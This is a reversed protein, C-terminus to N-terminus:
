FSALLSFQARPGPITIHSDVDRYAHWEVALDFAFCDWARGRLRPGLIFDDSIDAYATSRSDRFSKFWAATAGLEVWSPYFLSTRVHTFFDGEEYDYRVSLLLESDFMPRKQGVLSRQTSSVGGSIFVSKKNEIDSPLAFNNLIAKSADDRAVRLDRYAIQLFGRFISSPFNLNGRGAAVQWGTYGLYNPGPGESGLTYIYSPSLYYGHMLSNPNTSLPIVGTAGYASGTSSARVSSNLAVSWAGKLDMLHAQPGQPLQTDVAQPFFRSKARVPGCLFIALFLFLWGRPSGVFAKTPLANPNQSTEM